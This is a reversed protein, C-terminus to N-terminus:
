RMNENAMSMIRVRQSLSLSFSLLVVNNNKYTYIMANQAKNCMIKYGIRIINDSATYLKVSNYVKTNM